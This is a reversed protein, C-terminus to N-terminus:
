YNSYKDLVNKVTEIVFDVDKDTMKPFLPLSIIREYLWEATPCLGKKYGSKQYYPHFYVPIYHVQVGLKNKRLEDFVKKRNVILKELNLQIVYLHWSPDVYNPYSPTNIENVNEFVENYRKVIERRRKIFDDIKKLQSLGLACQLDTIRYNFGLLQQEYFWNDDSKTIFDDENKTIGHNRFLLM